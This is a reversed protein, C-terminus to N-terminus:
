STRTRKMLQDYRERRHAKEWGGEQAARWIRKRQRKMAKRLSGRRPRDQDAKKLRDYEQCWRRETPTCVRLPDGVAGALHILQDEPVEIHWPEGPVTFQASAGHGRLWAAMRAAGGDLNEVDIAHSEHGCDIHPATCSPVAALPARPGGAKFRLFAARLRKQEELTRRGSNLHFKVGSARAAGLVTAWSDSVLKGDVTAM